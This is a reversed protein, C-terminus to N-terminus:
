VTGPIYVRLNGTIHTAMEASIKQRAHLHHVPWTCRSYSANALPQTNNPPFGPYGLTSTLPNAFKTRFNKQGSMPGLPPNYPQIHLLNPINCSPMLSLILGAFR